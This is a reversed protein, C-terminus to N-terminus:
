TRAAKIKETRAARAKVIRLLKARRRREHRNTGAWTQPNALIARATEPSM